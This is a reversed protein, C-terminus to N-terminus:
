GFIGDFILFGQRAVVPTQAMEGDSPHATYRPESTTACLRPHKLGQGQRSSVDMKGYNSIIAEVLNIRPMAPIFCVM